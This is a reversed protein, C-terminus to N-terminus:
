LNAPTYICYFVRTFFCVLFYFFFLINYFLFLRACVTERKSWNQEDGGGGNASEKLEGREGGRLVRM